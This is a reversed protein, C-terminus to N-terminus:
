SEEYPPRAQISPSIRTMRVRSLPDRGRSLHDRGKSLPTVRLPLVRRGPATELAVGVAKGGLDGEVFQLGKTNLRVNAAESHLLVKEEESFKRTLQRSFVRKLQTIWPELKTLRYRRGPAAEFAVGM